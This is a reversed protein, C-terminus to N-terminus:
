DVVAAPIAGGKGAGILRELEARPILLIGRPGGDHLRIAKLRGESIWRRVTYCLAGTLEAVEAVLFHDKKRRSLTEQLQEVKFELTPFQITLLEKLLSGLSDVKGVLQELVTASVAAAHVIPRPM